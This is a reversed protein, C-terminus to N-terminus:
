GRMLEIRKKIFDLFDTAYESKTAASMVPYEGDDRPSSTDFYFVGDIDSQCIALHEPALLGEKHNLRHIYVIDGGVVTDFDEGYISFIEEGGIEGGNYNSLWWKYSPPLCIGLEKEAKQILDASVGNGFDAFEAVDAHSSILAKTEEYREM